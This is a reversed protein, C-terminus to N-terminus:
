LNEYLRYVGLVYRHFVEGQQDASLHSDFVDTLPRNMDWKIYDLNSEDIIKCKISFIKLLRM